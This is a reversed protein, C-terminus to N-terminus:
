SRSFIEFPRRSREFNQVFLTFPEWDRCILCLIFFRSYVQKISFLTDAPLSFGHFYLGSHMQPCKLLEDDSLKVKFLRTRIFHQYLGCGASDAM